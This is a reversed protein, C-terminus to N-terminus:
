LFKSVGDEISELSLESADTATLHIGVGMLVRKIAEKSSAYLMKSKIRATDPSWSLFVLKSTPRGDKTTLDLDVLAYRCDDTIQALKDAMDQYSESQPGTAEIVIESDDVIKYIFYRFDHPARKLKFDNFQTIVADDVGVGSSAALAVKASKALLPDSDQMLARLRLQTATTDLAHRALPLAAVVAVLKAANLQVRPRSSQLLQKLPALGDSQVIVRKVEDNAALSMLAGASAATVSWQPDSLLGCLRPLVGGHEVAAKRTKETFGLAGLADCAAARVEDQPDFLRKACLQVAGLELAQTVSLDVGDNALNKLLQLARLRLATNLRRSKLQELVIPLYGVSTLQRAGIFSASLLLLADYLHECTRKNSTSAFVPQIRTITGGRLLEAQGFPSEAMVSLVRASLEQLETDCDSLERDGSGVAGDDDCAIGSEILELVGYKLSMVLEQPLKLVSALAELVRRRLVPDGEELAHLLHPHNDAGFAEAVCEYPPEKVEGKVTMLTLHQGTTRKYLLSGQARLHKVGGVASASPSVMQKQHMASPQPLLPPVVKPTLPKGGLSIKHGSSTAASAEPGAFPLLSTRMKPFMPPPTFEAREVPATAKAAPDDCLTDAPPMMPEITGMEIYSANPRVEVAYGPFSITRPVHALVPAANRPQFLVSSIQTPPLAGDKERSLFSRDSQWTEAPPSHPLYRAISASSATTAGEDKEVLRYLLSSLNRERPDSPSAFQALTSLLRVCMSEVCPDLPNHLQQQQELHDLLELVSAVVGQAAMMAPVGPKQALLCFTAVCNTKVFMSSDACMLSVLHRIAGGDLLPQINGPAIALKRLVASSMAEAETSRVSGPSCLWLILPLVGRSLLLHSNVRGLFLNCTALAVNESCLESGVAFLECLLLTATESSLADHFKACTSANRLIGACLAVTEMEGERKGETNPPREQQQAALTAKLALIVNRMPISPLLTADCTLNYLCRLLLSQSRGTVHLLLAPLAIGLPGHALVLAPRTIEHLSLLHLLVVCSWACSATADEGGAGNEGARQPQKELEQLEAVRVLHTLTSMTAPEAFVAVAAEDDEPCNQFLLVLLEAVLGSLEAESEEAEVHPKDQANMVVIVHPLMGFKLLIAASPLETLLNILGKLVTAKTPSDGDCRLVQLLSMVAAPKAVLGARTSSHLTLVCFADSLIAHDQAEMAATFLGFAWLLGDDCMRQVAEGKALRLMNLLAKLCVRRTEPDNSKVCALVLLTRLAGLKVLNEGHVAKATLNCLTVACVRRVAEEPAAALLTLAKIVGGRLLPAGVAADQSLLAYTHVCLRLTEGDESGALVVLADLLGREVMSLRCEEVSAFRTLCAACAARLAARNASQEGSDGEISEARGKDRTCIDVVVPFMRDILRLLEDRALSRGDFLICVVNLCLSQAEADGEQAMRRLLFGEDGDPTAYAAALLLQHVEYEQCLSFFSGGLLTLVRRDKSSAGVQSLRGQALRAVDAKPYRFSLNYLLVMQLRVQASDQPFASFAVHRYIRELYQPQDLLEGLELPAAARQQDQPSCTETEDPPEESENWSLISALAFLVCCSIASATARSTPSPDEEQGDAQEHGHEHQFSLLFQFVSESVAEINAPESLLVALLHYILLRVGPRRKAGEDLAALADLAGASGMLERGQAEGALSSLTTLACVVYDDRAALGLRPLEEVVVRVCDGYRVLTRRCVGSEVLHWLAGLVNVRATESQRCGVLTRLLSLAEPEVLKAHNMRTCALNYVARSLTERDRADKGHEALAHVVDDVRPYSYQPCSLNFIAFTCAREALASTRRQKLLCDLAKEKIFGSESGDEMTLNALTGLCNPLLLKEHTHATSVALAALLPLANHSLLAARGEPECSLHGLIAVCASLTAVDKSRCLAVVSPVVNDGLLATHLSHNAAMAEVALAYQRKRDSKTKSPKNPNLHAAISSTPAVVPTAGRETAQQQESMPKTPTMPALKIQQPKYSSGLRASLPQKQKRSPPLRSMYLSADTYEGRQAFVDGHYQFPLKRHLELGAHADAEDAVFYDRRRQPSPPPPPPYGQYAPPPPYYPQQAYQPPPQQYYPQQPPYAGATPAPYGSQQPPYSPAAQQPVPYGQAAQQPAPYGPAVQQAAPYGPAAAQQPYAYAQAQSQSKTKGAKETSPVAAAAASQVGPGQYQIRLNIEGARKSGNNLTYWQDVVGGEITLQDLQPDVVAFVFVENWVPTKHGNDHVRTKFSKSRLSLKCFPDQKGFTQKDLLNRASCARVHLEMATAGESKRKKGESIVASGRVEDSQESIYGTVSLSEEIKLGRREPRRREVAICEISLTEINLGEVSLGEVVDLMDENPSDLYKPFHCTM